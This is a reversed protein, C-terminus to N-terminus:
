EKGDSGRAVLIPGCKPLGITPIVEICIVPGSKKAITRAPQQGQAIASDDVQGARSAVPLLAVGAFALVPLANCPFRSM